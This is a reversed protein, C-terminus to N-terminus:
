FDIGRVLAHKFGVNYKDYYGNRNRKNAKKKGEESRVPWKAYRHGTKESHKKASDEGFLEPNCDVTCCRFRNSQVRDGGAWKSEKIRHKGSIFLLEEVETNMFVEDREDYYEAMDGM